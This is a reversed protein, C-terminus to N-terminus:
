AARSDHKIGLNRRLIFSTRSPDVPDGHEVKPNDLSKLWRALLAPHILSSCVDSRGLTPGPIAAGVQHLFRRVMGAVTSCTEVDNRPSTYVLLDKAYFGKPHSLRINEALDDLLMIRRTIPRDKKSRKFRIAFAVHQGRRNRISLVEFNTPVLHKRNNNPLPQLAKTFVVVETYVSM